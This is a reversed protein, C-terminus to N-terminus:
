TCKFTTNTTREVKGSSPLEPGQGTRASNQQLVVVDGDTMGYDKLSRKDDVLLDGNFAIVIESTPVGSEVECFAKFNELELDEAVDLMFIKDTLTTVTIKM